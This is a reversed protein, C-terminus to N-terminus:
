EGELYVIRKEIISRNGADVVKVAMKGDHGTVKPAKGTNICEIFSIDENLYADKFLQRWSNVLPYSGTKSDTTCTLVCDGELRGIFVCGKTGLIETRADYAYGVGQAGDIMGQMGNEFSAAMVVNDYFDPFDAKADPCRYNGGIAYVSAFESGTFWRLTDIDHSNVEALPGNSKQIDYMWPQPVSPGRTNSRVMVVDGVAGSDVVEKARAFSQDYRRMFGIQLVAGGKKAAAIMEDCEEATMAMPKECLIHKGALAAAVAAEKHFKTPSVIVYADISKDELAQEYSRYHASIGLERCAAAAAEEAPDVMAAIRAGPVNKAFNVAHIMGARGAGIVCIGIEAKKM